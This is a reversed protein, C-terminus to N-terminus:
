IPFARVKTLKPLIAMMKADKPVNLDEAAAKATM